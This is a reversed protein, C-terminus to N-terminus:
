RMVEKAAQHEVEITSMHLRLMEEYRGQDGLSLDQLKEIVKKAFREVEVVTIPSLSV